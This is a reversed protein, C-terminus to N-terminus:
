YTLRFLRRLSTESEGSIGGMEIVRCIYAANPMSIDMNKAPTLLHLKTFRLLGARAGSAIQDPLYALVAIRSLKM